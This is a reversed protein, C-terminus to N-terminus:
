KLAEACRWMLRALEILQFLAPESAGPPLIGTQRAQSLLKMLENASTKDTLSAALDNIADRASSVETGRLELITAACSRLPGAMNAIMTVRQEEMLGRGIYAERMRLTLNLLTQRVRVISADRSISVAAFPDSGFLIQRRRIIDGFKVAFSEVASQLESDILFMASLRIAAQAVRLPERLQEAKAQSFKSLLVLVNVDSSPRLLGEAASGYLVISLLDQDFAARASETFSHLAREVNPPLIM